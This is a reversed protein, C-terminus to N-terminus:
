HPNRASDQHVWSSIQLPYTEDDCAMQPVLMKSYLKILRGDHGSYVMIVSGLIQTKPWAGLNFIYAEWVPMGTTRRECCTIKCILSWFDQPRPVSDHRARIYPALISHIRCQVLLSLDRSMRENWSIAIHVSRIEGFCVRRPLLGPELIGAHYACHKISVFSIVHARYQISQIM